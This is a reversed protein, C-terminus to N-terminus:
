MRTSLHITGTIATTSVAAQPPPDDDDEDADADPPRTVSSPELVTKGILSATASSNWRVLGPV